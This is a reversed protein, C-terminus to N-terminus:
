PYTITMSRALFSVSIKIGLNESARRENPSQTAVGVDTTAVGHCNLRTKTTWIGPVSLGVELGAVWDGDVSEGKVSDGEDADGFVRAGELRLGTVNDGAVPAGVEFAGDVLLGTVADGTVADGLELVGVVRPGVM